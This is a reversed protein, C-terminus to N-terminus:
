GSRNFNKVEVKFAIIAIACGTLVIQFNFILLTILEPNYLPSQLYKIRKGYFGLANSSNNSDLVVGIFLM